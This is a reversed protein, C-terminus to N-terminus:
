VVYTDMNALAKHFYLETQLAEDQELAALAKAMGREVAARREDGNVQSSTRFDGMIDLYAADCLPDAEGPAPATSVCSACSSSSASSSSSRARQLRKRGRVLTGRLRKALGKACPVIWAPVTWHTKLEYRGQVVTLVAEPHPRPWVNNFFRWKGKYYVSCSAFVTAKTRMIIEIVQSVGDKIALWDITARGLYFVGGTKSCTV